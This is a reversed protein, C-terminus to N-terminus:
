TEKLYKTLLETVMNEPPVPYQVSGALNVTNQVHDAYDRLSPILVGM